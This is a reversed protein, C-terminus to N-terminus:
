QHHRNKNKKQGNTTLVLPIMNILFTVFGALQLVEAVVYIAPNAFVFIFSLQSLLLMFFAAFNMHARKLNKKKADKCFCINYYHKAIFLLLVAATLHFVYYVNFSFLAIIFIMYAFLWQHEHDDSRSILWYIGFFALLMLFRHVDYGMQFFINSKEILNHKIIIDGLTDKVTRHYYLVFNTAIKALFSVALALFSLGLYKYNHLEKGSFKYLKFSYIAIMLTAIVGLIEFIIDYGFFWKPSFVLQLM